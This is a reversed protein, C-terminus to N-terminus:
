AAGCRRCELRWRLDLLMAPSKCEESCVFFSALSTVLVYRVTDASNRELGTFSAWILYVEHLHSLGPQLDSTTNHQLMVNKLAESPFLLLAAM